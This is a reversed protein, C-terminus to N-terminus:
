ALSIVGNPTQRQERQHCYQNAARQVGCMEKESAAAFMQDEITPSVQAYRLALSRGNGKELDQTRADRSSQPGSHATKMLRELKVGTASRADKSAIRLTTLRPAGLPLGCHQNRESARKRDGETKGGHKNIRNQEHENAKGERRQVRAPEHQRQRESTNRRQGFLVANQKPKYTREMGVPSTKQPKRAQSQQKRSHAKPKLAGTWHPISKWFTQSGDCRNNSYLYGDLVALAPPTNLVAPMPGPTTDAPKTIAAYVKKARNISFLFWASIFSTERVPSSARGRIRSQLRESITRAFESANNGCAIAQRQDSTTNKSAIPPNAVESAGKM